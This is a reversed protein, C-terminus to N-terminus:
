LSPVLAGLLASLQTGAQKAARLIEQESAHVGEPLAMDSIVALGLLALGMHAGAIAEMVMSMGVAHGGIRQLFRLEARTCFAPGLIGMYVGEELRFGQAVAAAHAKARLEPRYADFMVPFREGLEPDNPGLLPNTGTLNVHDTLAMIRGAEFRPDLGGAACTLVLRTAGMAKALLVPFVVVQPPHGEYLHVRGKFAMVPRGGWRGLVLEGRTHGPATPTPFNPIEGYPISAVVEIGAVADSLGSGLILAVEPQFGPAKAQLHAVAEAVQRRRDLVIPSSPSTAATM